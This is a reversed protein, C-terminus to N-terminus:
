WTWTLGLASEGSSGACVAFATKTESAAAEAGPPAHWWLFVAAASLVAGTVWAGLAISRRSNAEDRLSLARTSTACELDARCAGLDGNSDESLVLFTGGLAGAAVALSSTTWAASRIWAQDAPEAVPRPEPVLELRISLKQRAGLRITQVWPRHDPAVVSLRHEGAMVRTGQPRVVFPTGDLDIDADRPLGALVLLGGNLELDLREAAQRPKTPSPHGLRLSEQYHALAEKKRGLHELALALEATLKADRDPGLRHALELRAAAARWAQDAIDRRSQGILKHRLDSQESVPPSAALWTEYWRLADPWQGALDFCRAANYALGPKPVSEHLQGYIPAAQAFHGSKRLRNATEFREGLSPQQGIAAPALVLGSMFLAVVGLTKPARCIVPM